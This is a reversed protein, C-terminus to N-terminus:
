RMEEKVKEDSKFIYENTSYVLITNILKFKLVVLSFFCFSAETPKTEKSLPM